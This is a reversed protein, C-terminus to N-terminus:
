TGPRFYIELHIAERAVGKEKLLARVEQIMAGNGCLYFETEGWRFEPSLSRIYDTVRGSFRGAGTGEQRSLCPIWEVAPHRAFEADYLLDAERRVGLLCVARRPPSNRYDVSGVMSRFPAVGTGTAIFLCDRGPKPHFTFFGFPAHACFVDGPELQYLYNSGPGNELRQICLEVPFVGPASAISYARRLPLQGAAVPIEISVFQGARFDLPAGPDFTLEFVDPSLQRKGVVRCEFVRPTM